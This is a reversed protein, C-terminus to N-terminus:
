AQAGPDALKQYLREYETVMRAADFRERARHYAREGYESRLEPDEALQQLVTELAHMDNRRFFLAADGWLEHFIPLDNAVLACRSLAAELPALGFPEYCSTAIYTGSEAYLIRLESEDRVGCVEVSEAPAVAPGAASGAAPAELPGVIRVPVASRCSLLLGTQKGRDWVRGVSIACNAKRRPADFRSASRGNYIVARRAPVDYHHALADMMWQSPAVVVDAGRLGRNVTDEYWRSWSSQPPVTGHVANWWSLVDSHAVMLRPVRADVSGYCYQNLHLVDPRVDAILSQLFSSSEAVDRECDQMWELRYATPYYDLRELSRLRLEESRKPLAGLSVLTIRHGRALLGGVLEQTYTWVGGVTDATVLIHM